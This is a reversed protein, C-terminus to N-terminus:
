TQSKNVKLKKCANVIMHLAIGQVVLIVVIGSAGLIIQRFMESSEQGFATLMANELTLMSVTASVLSIAKAASYAPSGYKKYRVANIIALTLATFTYAAMAITTIEHHLFTRIRFVFYLTFVALALNMVLLLIGCFRYKRWEIITNEGPTHQRTHRVLTLRMLALLLYYGAMAYFWASRHWLGLCLQFVAYVANFGFSGYLSINIRLQVDNKYLLYYRNEQRFRQVWRIIDPIRLCVLVLTYFSLVYTVISLPDAEDLAVFSYALLVIAVVSLLILLAPHPFLMRKGIEKWDM